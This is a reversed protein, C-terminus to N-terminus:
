PTPLARDTVVISIHEEGSDEAAGDDGGEQDGGGRVRVHKVGMVADVDARAAARHEPVAVLLPVVPQDAGVALGDVDARRLLREVDREAGIGVAAQEGDVRTVVVREVREVELASVLARQV